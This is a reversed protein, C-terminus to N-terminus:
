GGKRQRARFTTRVKYVYTEDMPQWRHLFHKVQVEVYALKVLREANVRCVSVWGGTSLKLNVKLLSDPVRSM